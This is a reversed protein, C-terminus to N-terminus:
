RVKRATVRYSNGCNIRALLRLSSRRGPKRKAFWVAAFLTAYAGHAALIVPVFRGQYPAGLFHTMLYVASFLVIAPAIAALVRDRFLSALFMALVFYLFWTYDNALGAADQSPFATM